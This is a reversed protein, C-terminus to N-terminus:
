QPQDRGLLQDLFQMLVHLSEPKHFLFGRSRTIEAEEEDSLSSGTLIIVPAQSEPTDRRFRRLVDLGTMKEPLRVDLIVAEMGGGRLAAVAEAASSAEVAEYGHRALFRRLLDRATAEDDLVLVRPPAPQAEM